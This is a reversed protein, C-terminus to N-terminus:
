PAPPAPRGAARDSRRHPALLSRFVILLLALIFVISLDQGLNGAQQSSRAIDAQTAAQGALHASLGPPLLADAQVARRLGTTLDLVPGQVSLDVTALVQLEVARGDHSVGLDKVRQVHAAQALRSALGEVAIQDAATLMGGDRAVVVPVATQDPDQFPTALRAAQLSPSGAPLLGTNSDTVVSSL